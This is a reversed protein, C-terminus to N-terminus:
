AGVTKPVPSPAGSLYAFADEHTSSLLTTSQFQVLQRATERAVYIAVLRVRAHVNNEGQSTHICAYGETAAPKEEGNAPLCDSPLRSAELSLHRTPFDRECRWAPYIPHLTRFCPNQRKSGCCSWTAIRRLELRSESCDLLTVSRFGASVPWTQSASRGM